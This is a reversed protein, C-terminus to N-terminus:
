VENSNEAENRLRERQQAVMQPLRTAASDLTEQVARNEYERLLERLIQLDEEKAKCTPCEDYLDSHTVPEGHGNVFVVSGPTYLADVQEARLEIEKCIFPAPIAAELMIRAKERWEEKCAENETKWTYKPHSDPHLFDLIKMSHQYGAKAALEITLRTSNM